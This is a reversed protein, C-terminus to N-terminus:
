EDMSGRGVELNWVENKKESISTTQDTRDLASYRGQDDAVAGTGNTRICSPLLVANGHWLSRRSSLNFSHPTVSAEWEQQVPWGELPKLKEKHMVARLPQGM